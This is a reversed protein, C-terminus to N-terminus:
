TANIYVKVKARLVDTSCRFNGRSMNLINTPEHIRYVCARYIPHLIHIVAANFKVRTVWTVFNLPKREDHFSRARFIYSSIENAVNVWIQIM